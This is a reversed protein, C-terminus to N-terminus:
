IKEKKTESSKSVEELWWKRYKDSEDGKAKLQDKLEAIDFSLRVILGKLREVEENYIM